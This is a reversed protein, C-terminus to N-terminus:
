QLLLISGRIKYDMKRLVWVSLCSSHLLGNLCHEWPWKFTIVGFAVNGIRNPLDIITEIDNAARSNGIDLCPQIFIFVAIRSYFSSNDWFCFTKRM